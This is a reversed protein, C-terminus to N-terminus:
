LHIIKVSFISYAIESCLIDVYNVPPTELLVGEGIAKQIPLLGADKQILSVLTYFPLNHHYIAKIITIRTHWGEVKNKARVSQGVM